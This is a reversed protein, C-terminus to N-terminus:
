TSPTRKKIHNRRKTHRLTKHSFLKGGGCIHRHFTSVPEFSFREDLFAYFILCFANLEDFVVLTIINRGYLGQCVYVCGVGVVRFRHLNNAFTVRIVSVSMQFMNFHPRRSSCHNRLLFPAIIPPWITSLILLQRKLSRLKSKLARAYFGYYRDFEFFKGVYWFM